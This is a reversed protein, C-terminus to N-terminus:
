VWLCRLFSRGASCEHNPLHDVRVGAVFTELMRTLRRAVSVLPSVRSPTLGASTLASPRNVIWPTVGPRYRMTAFTGAPPLGDSHNRAEAVASPWSIRSLPSSRWGVRGGPSSTSVNVSLGELRVPTTM